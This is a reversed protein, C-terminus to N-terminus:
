YIGIKLAPELIFNTIKRNAAPTLVYRWQAPKSSQRGTRRRSPWYDILAVKRETWSNILQEFPESLGELRAQTGEDLLVPVNRLRLMKLFAAFDQNKILYSLTNSIEYDFITSYRSILGRMNDKVRYIDYDFARTHVSSESIIKSDVLKKCFNSDKLLVEMSKEVAKKPVSLVWAAHDITWEDFFQALLWVAEKLRPTEGITKETETWDLQDGKTLPTGCRGCYRDYRAVANLCHFCISPM